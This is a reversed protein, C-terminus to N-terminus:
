PDSGPAARRACHVRLMATTQEQVRLPPLAVVDSVPGDGVRLFLRFTFPATAQGIAHEDCRNGPAIRAPVRAVRQQPTSTGRREVTFDYLVSGRGRVAVVPLQGGERRLLLDGELAGGQPDLRWAPGYAVSVQEAVSTRFCRTDWLRRLFGEGSDTLPEALSGEETRVVALPREDGADCQERPLTTRLDLTAGPALESDQPRVFAGGYGSWRLGTGTVHLTTSSDNTVRLLAQRTGEDPIWQTLSVTADVQERGDEATGAADCAGLVSM